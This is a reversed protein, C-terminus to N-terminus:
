KGYRELFAGPAVPRGILYGQGLHCAFDQLRARQAATEIGEGVVTMGLQRGMMVITEALAQAKPTDGLRQVFSRDVKIQQICLDQMQSLSSFGTGFDDLAVRIGLAAFAESLRRAEQPATFTVSETVELVLREPPLGTDALIGQVLAFFNPAEWQKVSVNVSLDWAAFGQRQWEVLQQCATRLVWAGLDHILHSEEALPIFELPSIWGGGAQPWRALAEMGVVRGSHMEVQPQYHVAMRGDHIAQALRARLDAKRQATLTMTQSYFQYQAKGAAKAEYMATDAARLLANAQAEPTREGTDLGDAPHIAIGLSASLEIDDEGIRIPRRLCDLLKQAVRAADLPETLEPLLIVFEDGGLRAVTDDQRISARLRQGVEKLLEDGVSHGLSDNVSKFGDLDLVMFAVSHGSRHAQHFALQARDLLRLRNPLGTLPDHQALYASHHQADQWLRVMLRLELSDIVIAALDQLFRQEASSFIRPRTDYVALTGIRQRDPTILPAGAYARVQAHRVLGDKNLDPHAYLDPVTYVQDGEITRACCAHARDFEQVVTGQASKMWTRTADVLNILVVPVDLFHQALRTLRDFEVEPPTDLVQYRHLAELRKTEHEPGSFTM